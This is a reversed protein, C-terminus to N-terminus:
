FLNYKKVLIYTHVVIYAQVLIPIIPITYITLQSILYLMLFLFLYLLAALIISWMFKQRYKDHILIQTTFYSNMAIFPITLILIRLVNAALPFTKNTLYEFFLIFYDAGLLTVVCIAIAMYISWTFLRRVFHKDGGQSLKPYVTRIILMQPTNLLGVIREAINYYTVEVMGLFNGVIIKNTHSYMQISFSSIFLPLSQIAYHKLISFKQWRIKIKDQVFIIWLAYGGGIIAGTGYLLPVILYDSRKNILLFILCVAIIRNILDVLTIYKMKEIGQFYWRPFIWENICVFMSFIFLEQQQNAIPIFHLILFLFFFSIICLIGKIILVSNVIESLKQKNERFISIEKTAYLDFGFNVFVALYSITSQAFIVLGYAEKGLVNILYPFVIFPAILNFLYLISLYTFNSVLMKYKLIKKFISDEAM